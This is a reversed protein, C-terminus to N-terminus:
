VDWFANPIWRLIGPLWYENGLVHRWPGLDLKNWLAMPQLPLNYKYIHEDLGDAFMGQQLGHMLMSRATQEYAMSAIVPQIRFLFKSFMFMGMDNMYQLYKNQPTNYYIFTRLAEFKASEESVKDILTRYKYLVFRGMFDSYQTMLMAATGLESGPLMFLNQAVALATQGGRREGGMVDILRQMNKGAFSEENFGIDDVISTFLGDEVLQGATSTKMNNVLAARRDGLKTWKAYNNGKTIGQEWLAAMETELINAEKADNRYRDVAKIAEFSERILFGIPVGKSWMLSINSIFNGIVTAPMLIAIQYRRYKMMSQWLLEIWRVIPAAPGLFKNNSFLVKRYGMILNKQHRPVFAVREGFEEAFMQRTAPPMMAWMERGEKDSVDPGIMIFDRRREIPSADLYATIMGRVAQTNIDRTGLKDQISGFMRALTEDYNQRRHLLVEKEQDSMIYRYDSVYGNNDLTAVPVATSTKKIKGSRIYEKLQREAKEEERKRMALKVTRSAKATSKLISPDLMGDDDLLNNLGQVAIDFISQGAGAETTTSMIGKDFTALGQSGVYMRFKGSNIQSGPMVLGDDSLQERLQAWLEDMNYVDRVPKMGRKAMEKDTEPGKYEVVEVTRESDFTDYTYGKIQDTPDGEFLKEDASIKYSSHMNLLQGMGNESAPMSRGQENMILTRLEGVQVENLHGMARLTIMKNVIDEMAARAPQSERRELLTATTKRDKHRRNVINFANKMQGHVPTTGFMMFHALGEMQLDLYARYERTFNNKTRGFGLKDMEQDLQQLMQQRKAPNVLAEMIDNHDFNLPGDNLLSSADTRLVGYFLAEKAKTTTPKNGKAWIRNTFAKIGTIAQQRTIDVLKDSKLKLNLWFRQDVTEPLFETLLEYMNQGVSQVIKNQLKPDTDEWQLLFQHFTKRFQEWDIRAGDEATALRLTRKVEELLERPFSATGNEKMEEFNEHAALWKELADRRKIILRMFQEGSLKGIMNALSFKQKKNEVMKKHKAATWVMKHLLTDFQGQLSPNRTRLLSGLWSLLEGVLEVVALRYGGREQNRVRDSFQKWSFNRTPVASLLRNVGPNTYAMVVFEQLQRERNAEAEAFAAKTNDRTQVDAFLRNWKNQARIRMADTIDDEPIGELLMEWNSDEKLRTHLDAFKGRISDMKSRNRPDRRLEDTIASDGFMLGTLAHFTEHLFVEQQTMNVENDAMATALVIEIRTPTAVDAWRRTRGTNTYAEPDEIFQFLLGDLNDLGQKFLRGTATTDDLFRDLFDQEAQSIQGRERQLNAIHSITRLLEDRPMYDQESLDDFFTTNWAEPNAFLQVQGKSNTVSRYLTQLTNQKHWNRDFMSGLVMFPSYRGPGAATAKNSDPTGVIANREQEGAKVDRVPNGEEDLVPQGTKPDVKEPSLDLALEETMQVFDKYEKTGRLHFGTTLEAISEVYLSRISLQINSLLDFPIYPPNSGNERYYENVEFPPIVEFDELILPEFRYVKKYESRNVPPYPADEERPLFQLFSGYSAFGLREFYTRLRMFANREENSEDTLTEFERLKVLLRTQIDAVNQFYQNLIDVNAAVKQMAAEDGRYYFLGGNRYSMDRHTLHMLEHLLLEEFPKDEKPDELTDLNVKMTSKIRDLEVYNEVAGDWRNSSRLVLPVEKGALTGKILQHLDDLYQLSFDDGPKLGAEEARQIVSKRLSRITTDILDVANLAGYGSISTNQKLFDLWLQRTNKTTHHGSRYAEDLAAELQRLPESIGRSRDDKLYDVLSEQGAERDLLTGVQFPRGEEKPQREEVKHEHGFLAFQGVTKIGKNGFLAKRAADNDNVLRQMNRMKEAFLQRVNDPNSRLWRGLEAADVIQDAGGAYVKVTINNRRLLDRAGPIGLEVINFRSIFDDREVFLEGSNWQKRKWGRLNSGIFRMMTEIKQAESMRTDGAQLRPLFDELREVISGAMDWDRMREYFSKNAAETLGEYDLVSSIQADHVNLFDIGSDLLTGAQVSADTAHVLNVLAKAGLEESPTMQGLDFGFSQQKGPEEGRNKVDAAEIPKAFVLRGREHPIDTDDLIASTYNSIELSDSYKNKSFPVKIMPVEGKAIMDNLLDVQAQKSLPHGDAQQQADARRRYNQVFMWNYMDMLGNLENKLRVGDGLQEILAQELATGFVAQVGVFFATKATRDFYEREDNVNEAVDGLKGKRMENVIGVLAKTVNGAKDVKTEQISVQSTVMAAHLLHMAKNVLAKKGAGVSMELLYRTIFAAEIEAKNELDKIEAGSFDEAKWKNKTAHAKVAARFDNLGLDPFKDNDQLNLMQRVVFRFYGPDATMRVMKQSADVAAFDAYAALVQRRAEKVNFDASTHDVGNFELKFGGNGDPLLIDLSRLVATKQRYYEELAANEMAVRIAYEGASYAKTMLPAKGFARDLIVFPNLEKDMLTQAALAHWRQDDFRDNMDHFRLNLPDNPGIRQAILGHDAERVALGDVFYVTGKQSIGLESSRRQRNFDGRSITQEVFKKVTDVLQNYNDKNKPDMMYEALTQVDDGEFFIGGARLMQLIRPNIKGGILFGPMQMMGIIVGNTKGDVEMSLDSTFSSQDSRKADYYNGLALMAQLAWMGHEGSQAIKGVRKALDESLKEKKQVAERLELITKRLDTNDDFATKFLENVEKDTLADVSRKGDGTPVSKDMALLVTRQFKLMDDKSTLKIQKNLSSAQPFLYRHLKSQQPNVESGNYYMRGSSIMRQLFYFVRDEDDGLRLVDMLGRAQRLRRIEEARKAMEATRDGEYTRADIDDLSTIGMVEQLFTEDDEFLDLVTALPVSLQYGMQSQMLMAKRMEEPIMSHSDGALHTPLNKETPKDFVVDDKQIAAGFLKFARLGAKLNELLEITNDVNKANPYLTYMRVDGERDVGLAQLYRGEVYQRRFLSEGEPLNTTTTVGAEKWKKQLAPADFLDKVQGVAHIGVYGMVKVLKAYMAPNVAQNSSGPGWGLAAVAAKGVTNAASSMLKGHKFVEKLENYGHLARLQSENMGLLSAISEPENHFSSSGETIAWVLTAHAIAYLVEDPIPESTGDEKTGGYLYIQVVDRLQDAFTPTKNKEARGEGLPKYPAKGTGKRDLVQEPTALMEKMADVLKWSASNLAWFAAEAKPDPEGDVETAWKAIDVFNKKWWERMGEEAWLWGHALIGGVKNKSKKVIQSLNTPLKNGYVLRRTVSNVLENGTLGEEFRKKLGKKRAALWDNIPKGRFERNGDDDEKYAAITLYSGLKKSLENQKLFKLVKNDRKPDVFEKIRKELNEAEWEHKEQPKYKKPDGEEAGTVDEDRQEEVVEAESAEGTNPFLEGQAPGTEPAEQQTESGEATQEPSPESVQELDPFLKLQEGPAPEGLELDPAEEEEEQEVPGDDSPRNEGSEEPGEEPKVDTERDSEAAESENDANDGEPSDEDKAQDGEKVEESQQIIEFDEVPSIKTERTYSGKWKPLMEEIQEDTLQNLRVLFQHLRQMSDNILKLEDAIHLRLRERRRDSGKNWGGYGARGEAPRVWNRITDQNALRRVNDVATKAAKENGTQEVIEEEASALWEEFKDFNIKFYTWNTLRGLNDLATFWDLKDRQIRALLHIRSIFQGPKEAKTDNNLKAMIAKGATRFLQPVSMGKSGGTEKIEKNVEEATTASPGFSKVVADLHKAMTDISRDFIQKARLAGGKLTRDSVPRVERNTGDNATDGEKADPNNLPLAHQTGPDSDDQAERGAELEVKELAKRENAAFTIELPTGFLQSTDPGLEGDRLSQRYNDIQALQMLEDLSLSEYGENIAKTFLENHQLKVANHAGKLIKGIKSNEAFLTQLSQKVQEYAAKESETADENREASAIAGYLAGLGKSLLTVTELDLNIDGDGNPTNSVTNALTELHSFLKDISESGIDPKRNIDADLAKVLEIIDEKVQERTADDVISDGSFTLAIRRVRKDFDTQETKGKYAAWGQAAGSAVSRIAQIKGASVFGAAAGTATAEGIVGVNPDTGTARSTVYEGVAAGAIGSQISEEAMEKLGAESIDWATAATRKGFNVATGFVKGLATNAEKIMGGKAFHRFLGSKTLLSAEIGAAGTVLSAVSAIGFTMLASTVAANSILQDIAADHSFGEAILKQYEPSQEWQEDTVQLLEGVVANTNSIAETGGILMATNRRTRLGVISNIKKKVAADLEKLKERRWVAIDSDTAGNQRLRAEEADLKSKRKNDLRDRVKTLRAPDNLLQREARAAIKKGAWGIGILYGASNLSIALAELPNDRYYGLTDGAIVMAGAMQANTNDWGAERMNDVVQQAKIQNFQSRNARQQRVERGRQTRLNNTVENFAKNTDQIFSQYRDLGAEYKERQRKQEATENKKYEEARAEAEEVFNQDRRVLNVNGRGAYAGFRGTSFNTGGQLTGAVLDSATDALPTALEDWLFGLVGREGGSEQATGARKAALLGKYNFPATASANFAADSTWPRLDGQDMSMLRRDYMDPDGLSFTNGAERQEDIFQQLRETQQQGLRVMDEPDVTTWDDIDMLKAFAKKHNITKKQSALDKLTYPNILQGDVEKMTEFTDLSYGEEGVNGPNVRYSRGTRSDYATDGDLATVGEFSFGENGMRAARVNAEHQALKSEIAAQRQDLARDLAVAQFEEALEDFSPLHKKDVM